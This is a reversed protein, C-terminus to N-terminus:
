FQNYLKKALELMDCALDALQSSAIYCTMARNYIAVYLRAQEANVEGPNARTNATFVRKTFHRENKPNNWVPHKVNIINNIVDLEAYSPDKVNFTASLVYSYQHADAISTLACVLTCEKFVEKTAPPVIARALADLDNLAILGQACAKVIFVARAEHLKKFTERVFAPLSRETAVERELLDSRPLKFERIM